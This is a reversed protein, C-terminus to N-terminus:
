VAPRISAVPPPTPRHLAYYGQLSRVHLRSHGYHLLNEARRAVPKIYPLGCGRSFGLGLFYDTTMAFRKPVRTLALLVDRRVYKYTTQWQTRKMWPTTSEPLQAGLRNSPQGQAYCCRKERELVAGLHSCHKPTSLTTENDAATKRPKPKVRDPNAVLRQGVEFWGCAARSTFFGCTSCEKLGHYSTHCSVAQQDGVEGCTRGAM